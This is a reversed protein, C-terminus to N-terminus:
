VHARGIQFEGESVELSLNQLAVLGESGAPFAKTVRDATLIGSM